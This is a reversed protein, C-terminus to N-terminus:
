IRVDHDGCPATPAMDQERVTYFKSGIATKVWYVDGHRALVKVVRGDLLALEGESYGSSHM